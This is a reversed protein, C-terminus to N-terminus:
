LTGDLLKAVQERCWDISERVRPDSDYRPWQMEMHHQFSVSRLTPFHIAEVEKRGEIKGNIMEDADSEGYHHPSLGEAWALVKFQDPPLNWPHSLQHHLSNVWITKGDYTTVRHYGPHDLDQVLLGGAAVTLIQSGRCTGIIPIGLERARQIAAMEVEDRHPNCYTTPHERKGYLRPSVDSGGSLGLLTADEIRRVPQCNPLWNAYGYAGDPYFIRIPKTM